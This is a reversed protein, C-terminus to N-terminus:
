NTLRLRVAAVFAADGSVHEAWKEMARRLAGEATDGNCWSCVAESVRSVRVQVVSGKAFVAIQNPERKKPWPLRQARLFAENADFLTSGLIM